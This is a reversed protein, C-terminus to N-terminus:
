RARVDYAYVTDQDRLILKGHTIIPHSWTPSGGTQLTFRGHERYATPNAEALGVVGNESYLYLRNDAYILSGKGVSRDRWVMKGSDFNLATLISSSFGYLTDGVLVSSSHHNRMERTFYVEEAAAITGAAKVTVLGAGTGYDSSIFVRNGRVVPTAINATRNAPRDYTWLLRGDRPDVALARQGTFFVVQQFSGTRLLVPSSYGAEDNHNRWLAKGDAKNIAVISARRGGANVVIRDGLVLPSESYGWSPTIGGFVDVFDVTWIKKGTAADLASLAGAGGLAYLRDGDVTPTSRPGDGQANRYRPGNATEWLKKGTAADFAMVYETGGRAGLTYLRGHSASFSSFGDGAGSAQWIRRPGGQPWQQLLGTEASHGDRNPGRWQHWEPPAQASWAGPRLSWAGLGLSWAGLGLSWPGPALSWVGSTLVFIAMVLRITRNGIRM